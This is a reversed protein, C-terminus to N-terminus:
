FWFGPVPILDFGEAPSGTLWDSGMGCLGLQESSPSYILLRQTAGHRSKLGVLVGGVSISRECAEASQRGLCGLVVM